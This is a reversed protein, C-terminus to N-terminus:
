GPRARQGAGPQRKRSQRHDGRGTQLGPRRSGDLMPFHSHRRDILQDALGAALLGLAVLHRRELLAGLLARDAGADIGHRRLLRVRRQALHRLNAQGIAVLGERINGAFTVVELFMRDHQDAAAAHLVKRAHAIVDDAAHEVRLADLVALLTPGEVAGLTWLSRLSAFTMGSPAFRRDPISISLFFYSSFIDRRRRASLRSIVGSALNPSRTRALNMFLRIYSPLFDAASPMM